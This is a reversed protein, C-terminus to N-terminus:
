PSNGPASPQKVERAHYEPVTEGCVTWKTVNGDEDRLWVQADDGGVITYDGNSDYRQAWAEVIRCPETGYVERWENEDTPVAHDPQWQRAIEFRKCHCPSWTFERCRTCREYRSAM